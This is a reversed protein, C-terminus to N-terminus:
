VHARYQELTAGSHPIGVLLSSPGISVREVVRCCSEVVRCCRLCTWLVVVVFVLNDSM